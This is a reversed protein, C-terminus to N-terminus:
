APGAELNRLMSGDANLCAQFEMTSGPTRAPTGSTKAWVVVAIVRVRHAVGASDWYTIVSGVGMSMLPTFVGPNHGVFYIRDHICTDIAAAEHSLPTQGGCDGYDYVSTSLAGDDSTLYDHLEQPPAAAPAPAKVLAAAQPSPAPLVRPAPMAPQTAPAPPAPVPTATAPPASPAATIAAAAALAVDPAATVVSPLAPGLHLSTAHATSLAAGPHDSAGTGASYGAAVGLVGVALAAVALVRVRGVTWSRGVLRAAGTTDRMAGGAFGWLTVTPKALLQM